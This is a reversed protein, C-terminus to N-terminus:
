GDVPCRDIGLLQSLLCRRVAGEVVLVVGFLGLGLESVVPVTVCGDVALLAALLCGIGVAIRVRADLPGVNRSM